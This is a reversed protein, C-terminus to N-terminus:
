PQTRRGPVRATSRPARASAATTRACHGPRAVAHACAARAAQRRRDRHRRHPGCTRHRHNRRVSARRQQGSETRSRRPAPDARSPSAHANLFERITVCAPGPRPAARCACASAHQSGPTSWGSADRFEVRASDRPASGIHEAHKPPVPAQGPGAAPILLLWGPLILRPDTLAEGGPQPRDKNLSYIGHWREGDGLYHEALDWLNDGARVLHVRMPAANQGARSSVVSSLQGAEQSPASSADAPSAPGATPDAPAAYAALARHLSAPHTAVQPLATMLTAGVLASALAQVPAIGPLRAVRRNLAVAAAETALSTAFVLWLLWAATALARIIAQDSLPTALFAQAQAWAPLHRPIPSGTCRYLVWPLGALLAATMALTAAARLIQGIRTM